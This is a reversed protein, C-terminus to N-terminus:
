ERIGERLKIMSGSRRVLRRLRRGRRRWVPVPNTRALPNLEPRRHPGPQGAAAQNHEALRETITTTPDTPIRATIGGSFDQSDLQAQKLMDFREAHQAEFSTDRDIRLDALHDTQALQDQKLIALRNTIASPIVASSSVATVSSDSQGSPIMWRGFSVALVAVAIIAIAEVM